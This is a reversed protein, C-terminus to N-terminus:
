KNNSYFKLMRERAAKMKSIDDDSNNLIDTIDKKLEKVEATSTSATSSIEKAVNNLRTSKVLTLGEM